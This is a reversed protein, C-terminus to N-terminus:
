KRYVPEGVVPVALTWDLNAAGAVAGEGLCLLKEGAFYVLLGDGARVTRVQADGL